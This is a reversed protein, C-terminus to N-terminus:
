VTLVTARRACAVVVGFGRGGCDGWGWGYWGVMGGLWLVRVAERV